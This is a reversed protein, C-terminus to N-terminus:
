TNGVFSNDSTNKSPKEGDPPIILQGAAMYNGDGFIKQFSFEQNVAPRPDVM